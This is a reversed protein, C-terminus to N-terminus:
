AGFHVLGLELVERAQGLYSYYLCLVHMLGPVAKPGIQYVSWVLYNYIGYLLAFIALLYKCMCYQTRYLSRLAIPGTINFGEIVM